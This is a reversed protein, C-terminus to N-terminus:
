FLLFICLCIEKLLNLQVNVDASSFWPGKMLIQYVEYAQIARRTTTKMQPPFTGTNALM